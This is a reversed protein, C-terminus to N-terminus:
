AAERITDAVAPLATESGTAGVRRRWRPVGWSVLVRVVAVEGTVFLAEDGFQDMAAGCLAPGMLSGACNIALFWANAQALQSSPLREGLIALGLPYFSASCAGALLLWVCLWASPGCFPLCALSL